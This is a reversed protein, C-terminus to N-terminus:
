GVESTRDIFESRQFRVSFIENANLPEIGSESVTIVDLTDGLANFIELSYGNEGDSVPHHEVITAVDGKKLGKEPIDKALAVEEFLSYKM